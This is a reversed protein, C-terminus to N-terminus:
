RITNTAGPAVSLTVIGGRDALATSTLALLSIILTLLIVTTKKV